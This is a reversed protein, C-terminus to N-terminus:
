NGRYYFYNIFSKMTEVDVVGTLVHKVEGNEIIFTTPTGSFYIYSYLDGYENSSLNSLNIKYMKLDYYNLAESLIPIFEECYSCGDKVVVLMSRKTTKFLNTFTKFNIDTLTENLTPLTDLTVKANNKPQELKDLQDEGLNYELNLTGQGFYNDDEKHNFAFVIGYVGLIIIILFMISLIIKKM